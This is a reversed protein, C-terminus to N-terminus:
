TGILVFQRGYRWGLRGGVSFALSSSFGAVLYNVFDTKERYNRLSIEVANLVGAFLGIRSGFYWGRKLFGNISKQRAGVNSYRIKLSEAATM